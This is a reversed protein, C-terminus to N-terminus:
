LLFIQTLKTLGASVFNGWAILLIGAGVFIVGVEGKKEDPTPPSKPEALTQLVPLGNLAIFVFATGYLVIDKAANMADGGLERPPVLYLMVMTCFSALVGAPVSLILAAFPHKRALLRVTSALSFAAAFFFALVVLLNSLHLRTPVADTQAMTTAQPQGAYQLWAVLLALASVLVGVVTAVLTVPSRAFEERANATLPM